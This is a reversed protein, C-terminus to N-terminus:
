RIIILGMISSNVVGALFRLNRGLSYTHVFSCHYARPVTPLIYKNVTCTHIVQQDIFPLARITKTVMTDQPDLYQRGHLVASYISSRSM